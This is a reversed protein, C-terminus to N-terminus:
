VLRHQFAYATAAARSSVRLKSFINSVHRDVTRESLVLAAAIEKNSKGSAVLRLVELERRTLGHTETAGHALAEVRAADLRAGLREFAHRATELELGASDEDGLARCAEALSVRTRAEEYPADLERWLQSARRLYGLAEQADGGALTVTGRAHAVAAALLVSGFREAIEGLEAAASRAEEIENSALMIEVVAPLLAARTTPDSGEDLASRIAACAADARGQALRVLALGPQRGRGYRSAERYADEAGTLDGSLRLLEGQRYFAEGAWARDYGEALRVGARGAEELAERWQGKLQLIEARHVLCRGTFAVLDPQHECWRTLAATWEQARRTEYVEQCAGIVGCYVLGTAIPSVERTTVTVMAEDLLALGEGVRGAKILMYGQAQLALAFGDPDGFREAMAVAEGAVGAAAAYEGAWEHQFVRPMLLYGREPVDREERELLRQATALWGSAQAMEGRLAFTIGVWFACRVARLTEGQDLYGRHARELTRLYDDDRGLMYSSTALLELDKPGLPTERDASVLSEYADRWAWAVYAERGRELEGVSDRM